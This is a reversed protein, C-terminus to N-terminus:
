DAFVDSMFTTNDAVTFLPRFPSRDVCRAPRGPYWVLQITLGWSEQPQGEAGRAQKPILYNVQNELAWSRGIPVRVDAGLMADGRGSFGAWFRGEGGEDFYRRYYLAFMDTPDLILRSGDLLSFDGSGTGCAGFYGFERRGGPLVYGIETRLQSLDTRDYYADCLLDFAVGWQLGGCVARRFLGTTFFIQNRDGRRVEPQNDTASPQDVQDGSFNSQVAAMGVQFGVALHGSLATGFNVGEQLGFNGNRGQDPPGKFGHVGAFLSLDRMWWTPPAGWYSGAGYGGGCGCGDDYCAGCGGCDGGCGVCEDYCENGGCGSGCDVCDSCGPLPASLPPGAMVPEGVGSDDLGIPDYATDPPLSAPQTQGGLLDIEKAATSVPTQAIRAPTQHRATRGPVQHRPRTALQAEPHNARGRRLVRQQWDGRASSVESAAQKTDQQAVVNECLALLTWGGILGGTVIQKLVSM